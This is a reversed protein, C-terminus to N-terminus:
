RTQTIPSISEMPHKWRVFCATKGDGVSFWRVAERHGNEQPFVYNTGMDDVTSKYVGIPCATLTDEYNEGAGRGHWMTNQLSKDARLVVGLRPLFAPELKGNTRNQM